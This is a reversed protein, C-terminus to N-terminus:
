MKGQALCLVTNASQPIETPHCDTVNSDSFKGMTPSVFSNRIDSYCWTGGLCCREEESGRKEYLLWYYGTMVYSILNRSYIRVPLYMKVYSLTVWGQKWNQRTLTVIFVPRTGIRKLSMSALMLALIRQGKVLISHVNTLPASEHGQFCVSKRLKETDKVGEPAALKVHSVDIKCM